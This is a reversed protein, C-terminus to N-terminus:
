NAMNRVLHLWVERWCQVSMCAGSHVMRVNDFSIGIKCSVFVLKLLLFTNLIRYWKEHRVCKRLDLRHCNIWKMQKISWFLSKAVHNKELSWFMTNPLLKFQSGFLALNDPHASAAAWGCLRWEVEVFAAPRFLWGDGKMGKMEKM